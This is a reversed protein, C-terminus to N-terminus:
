QQLFVVLVYFPYFVGIKEAFINKFRLRNILRQGKSRFQLVYMCDSKKDIKVQSSAADNERLHVFWGLWRFWRLRARQQTSM